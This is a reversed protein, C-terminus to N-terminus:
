KTFTLSFGISGKPFVEESLDDCPALFEKSIPTLQTLVTLIICHKELILKKM